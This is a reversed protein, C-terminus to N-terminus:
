GLEVGRDALRRLATLLPATVAYRVNVGGCVFLIEVKGLKELSITPTLDPGRGARGPRGDLSVIRWEYVDRGVVRNAMRLPELANSVALPSYDPLPLFALRTKGIVIRTHWRRRVQHRNGVYFPRM